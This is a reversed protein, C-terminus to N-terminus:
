LVERATQLIRNVETESLAPYLPLSLAQHFAATANPYGRDPQDLCRHIPSFVPRRAAVGNAEFRPILDPAGAPHRIVYRFPYDGPAFCPLLAGTGALEQTYRAGLQRRRAIFPDLKRLQARAIAAQLDTLKYNFRPTADTRGDYDRLDRVREALEPTAAAVAGGEGAGLVKTAYFSFIALRGLSGLTKGGIQAGLSMACDEVIPVGLALLAHLDAARGFMHPVLVACTRPTLREALDGPAINLTEPDIDVLLPDAGVHQVAHLLAACVYTPMAVADGPGIGLALLALHLAASGSSVAVVHDVGLRAALERELAAVEPGQALHGSRIVRCAAEEEEVGLCPRSHPIM